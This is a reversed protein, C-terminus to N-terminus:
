RKEAEENDPEALRIRLLKIRQLAYSICARRLPQTEGNGRRLGGSKSFRWDGRENLRRSWISKTSCNAARRKIRLNIGLNEATM